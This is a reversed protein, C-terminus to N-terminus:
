SSTQMAAAAECPACVGQSARARVVPRALVVCAPLVGGARALASPLLACVRPLLGLLPASRFFCSAGSKLLEKYVPLMSSLLDHRSYQVRDSCDQWPGPVKGTVNAHMAAQVRPQNLYRYVEDDICPDYREADGACALAARRCM